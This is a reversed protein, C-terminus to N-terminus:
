YMLRQHNVEANAHTGPCPVSCASNSANRFAGHVQSPSRRLFNLTTLRAFLLRGPTALVRTYVSTCSSAQALCQSTSWPFTSPGVDFCPLRMTAESTFAPCEGRVPTSCYHATSAVETILIDCYFFFSAVFAALFALRCLDLQFTAPTSQCGLHSPIGGCWIPASALCASGISAPAQGDVVWSGEHVM